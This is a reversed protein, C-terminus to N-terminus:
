RPLDALHLRRRDHSRLSRSRGSFPYIAQAEREMPIVFAGTKDIYGFLGSNTGVAALGESFEAAWEFQPKIVVTGTKDIYGYRRCRRACVAVVALGESFPDAGDFQPEIVFAGTKDIYGWRAADNNAPFGM